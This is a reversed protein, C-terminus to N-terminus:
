ALRHIYNNDYKRNDRVCAFVRHIIKNRIANLATMKNKGEAIKRLYYDQLEGKSGVASRASLNLLTKMKKNAKKSVKSKTKLSKGSQKTFPVVGCHCAMKKAETISKFENSVVIINAAVILGVGKVSSVLQYLKSLQEDENLLSKMKQEIDRIQEGMKDLVPKVRKQHEKHWEKDSYLEEENCPVSLSTKANVLRSRLSILSKLKQIVKREPKWLHAKHVKAAAYEAIRLADIKDNKDRFAGHFANIKTAAELWVSLDQHAAYSM